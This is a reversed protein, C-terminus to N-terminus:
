YDVPYISRPEFGQLSLSIETKESVDLGAKSDKKGPSVAAVYLKGELTSLPFNLRVELRTVAVAL